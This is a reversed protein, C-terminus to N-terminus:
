TSTAETPDQPRDSWAQHVVIGARVMNAQLDEYNKLLRNLELVGGTKRKELMDQKFQAIAILQTCVQALSDLYPPVCDLFPHDTSPAAGRERALFQKQDRTHQRIQEMVRIIRLYDVQPLFQNFPWLKKWSFGLLSEHAAKQIKVMEQLNSIIVPALTLPKKTTTNSTM